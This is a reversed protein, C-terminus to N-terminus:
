VEGAELSLRLPSSCVKVRLLVVCTYFISQYINAMGQVFCEILLLFFVSLSVFCEPNVLPISRNFCKVFDISKVASVILLKTQRDVEHVLVCALLHMTEKLCVRVVKHESVCEGRRTAQVFPADICCQCYIQHQRIGLHRM